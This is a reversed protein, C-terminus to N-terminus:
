TICILLLNFNLRLGLDTFTVVTYYIPHFIHVEGAERTRGWSGAGVADRSDVQDIWLTFRTMGAGAAM